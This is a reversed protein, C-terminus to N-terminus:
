QFPNSRAQNFLAQVGVSNDQLAQLQKVVTPDIHPIAAATVQSTVDSALPQAHSLSNVRFLVFGYLGAVFVIFLILSYDRLRSLFDTIIDLLESRSLKPMTM